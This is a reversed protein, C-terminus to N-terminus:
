QKKEKRKDMVLIGCRPGDGWVEHTATKSVFIADGPSLEVVDLGDIKWFSKGIIQLYCSNLIDKHSEVVGPLLSVVYGDLHWINDCSCVGNKWDENWRCDELFDSDSDKNLKEMFNKLEPFDSWVQRDKIKIWLSAQIVQLKENNKYMFKLVSDWSIDTKFYSKIVSYKDLDVSM